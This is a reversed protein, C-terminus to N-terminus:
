SSIRDGVVESLLTQINQPLNAKKITKKIPCYKRAKAKKQHKMGMPLSSHDEMSILVFFSSSSLLVDIEKHSFIM